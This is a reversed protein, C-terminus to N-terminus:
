DIGFAIYKLLNSTLLRIGERNPYFRDTNFLDHRTWFSDFNSIFNFGAALCFHCLWQHLGYLRSIYESGMSPSPLPGSVICRKGLTEILFCIEELDLHLKASQRFMMENNGTHIIVIKVSTHTFFKLCFSSSIVLRVMLCVTPSALQFNLERSPFTVLCSPKHCHLTMM